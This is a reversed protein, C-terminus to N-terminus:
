TGRRALLHSMGTPGLIVVVRETAMGHHEGVLLVVAAVVVETVQVATVGNPSSDGDDVDNGDNADGDNDTPHSGLIPNTWDGHWEPIGDVSEDLKLSDDANLKSSADFPPIQAAPVTSCPVRPTSYPNAAPADTPDFWKRLMDVSTVADRQHFLAVWVPHGAPLTRLERTLEEACRASLLIM